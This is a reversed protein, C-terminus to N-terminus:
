NSLKETASKLTHILFPYSFTALLLMELGLPYFILMILSVFFSIWTSFCIDCNLLKGWFQNQIILEDNTKKFIKFVIYEKIPSNFWTFVINTSIFLGVIYFILYNIM